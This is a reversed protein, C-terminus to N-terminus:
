MFLLLVISQRGTCELTVVADCLVGWGWYDCEVLRGEDGYCDVASIWAFSNSQSIVRLSVAGNYGLQNCSVNAETMGFALACVPAWTENYYVELQGERELVGGTLRLLGFGVAPPSDLSFCIDNCRM